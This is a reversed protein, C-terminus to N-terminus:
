NHSHRGLKIIQYKHGIAKKLFIHVNESTVQKELISKWM